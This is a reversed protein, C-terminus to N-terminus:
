IKSKSLNVCLGSTLKFGRLTAKLSWLNNWSRDCLVITDEAFPFFEFHIDENFKFGKLEGLNHASRVLGAIGKAILLFLLPFIHDGQRLGNNIPFVMTPNKNVLIFMCSKFILAEM